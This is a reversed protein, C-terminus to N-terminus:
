GDQREAMFRAVSADVLSQDDTLALPDAGVAVGMGMDTANWIRRVQDYSRGYPKSFVFPDGPARRRWRVLLQALDRDKHTLLHHGVARPVGTMLDETEDWPM